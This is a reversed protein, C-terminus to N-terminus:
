DRRGRAPREDAHGIGGIFDGGEIVPRGATLGSSKVDCQNATTVDRRDARDRRITAHGPDVHKINCFLAAACRSRVHRARQSCGGVVHKGYTEIHPRSGPGIRRVGVGRLAHVEAAAIRIHM